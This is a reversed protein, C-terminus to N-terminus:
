AISVQLLPIRECSRACCACVDFVSAAYAPNLIFPSCHQAMEEKRVQLDYNNAPARRPRMAKLVYESHLYQPRSRVYWNQPNQPDDPGEWDVVNPDNPDPARDEVAAQVPAAKEIDADPRSDADSSKSSVPDLHEKETYKDSTHHTVGGNATSDAARMEESGNLDNSPATQDSLVGERGQADTM